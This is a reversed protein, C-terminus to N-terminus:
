LASARYLAAAVVETPLGDDLAERASRIAARAENSPAEEQLARLELAFEEIGGGPDLDLDGWAELRALATSLRARWAGAAPDALVELRAKLLGPWPDEAPIRIELHDPPFWAVAAAPADPRWPRYLLAGPTLRGGFLVTGAAEAGKGHLVFRAEARGIHYEFLPDLDDNM